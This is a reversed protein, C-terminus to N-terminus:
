NNLLKTSKIFLFQGRNQLKINNQKFIKNELEKNGQINTRLLKM